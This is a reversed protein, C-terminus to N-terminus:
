SIDIWMAPRVGISSDNIVVGFSWVSGVSSVKIPRDNYQGSTRLWWDCDGSSVGRVDAYYTSECKRESYSPFYNNVEKISLLFIKDQTANGQPTTYDPNKDALVTVTPILKKQDASFASNFFDNNLWKRISSSEYFVAKESTNYPQCDLIYKSVVFIRDENVELVKWEITEKGNSTNDDQEYAGFLIYDGVKATKIKYENYISKAKEASDKYDDLEILAEYAEVTKNTNMLNIAIAYKCENIKERSDNYRGLEEFASIAEEYKGDNMLDIAIAYKCENIKERTDNYRGLEEFALIAEEYRGNNMLVMADDYKRNSAITSNVILFIILLSIVLIVAIAIIKNRKNRKREKIRSIEEQREEEIRKAENKEKTEKLIKECIYIQDQSDKWDAISKFLEIAKSLSSITLQNKYNCASDYIRNFKAEKSFKNCKQALETSDKYNSINLFLAEAENYKGSIMFAIAQSYIREVERQEQYKVSEKHATELKEKLEDDGYRLARKYNINDDIREGITSLEEISSVKLDMMLKALYADANEPDQNLAAEIYNDAKDFAGEELFLFARKILVDPQISLLSEEQTLSEEVIHIVKNGCFPCFESDDPISNACTNCKIM